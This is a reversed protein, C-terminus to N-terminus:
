IYTHIHLYVHIYIYIYIHKKIYLPVFGCAVVHIFFTLKSLQRIIDISFSLAHNYIQGPLALIGNFDEFSWSIDLYLIKCQM